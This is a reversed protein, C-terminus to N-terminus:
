TVSIPAGDEPSLSNTFYIDSSDSSDRNPPNPQTLVIPGPKSRSLLFNLTTVNKKEKTERDAINLLHVLCKRDTQRRSNKNKQEVTLLPNENKEKM